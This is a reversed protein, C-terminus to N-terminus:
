DLKRKVFWREYISPAFSFGVNIGYYNESFLSKNNTSRTGLAFSLNISSLSKQSLVPIGFGITLGKDKVVLNNQLYPLSYIYGGIRYKTKVFISSHNSKENDMIEPTYQIGFTLKTTKQFGYNTSVGSARSSFKSWDTNNLNVHLTLESNRVNNGNKYKDNYKFSYSAGLTTSPATKYHLFTTDSTLIVYSFQNSYVELYSMLNDVQKAFFDEQPEIVATLTYQNKANIKQNYYIGFQYHVANLRTSSEFTGGSSSDKGLLNSSKSNTVNNFVYGLNAGVALRIKKLKIIDSSFGVFFESTNGSGKYTHKISDGSIPQVEYFNYGRRTFPKLGIAFGFHKAFSLGFAFHNVLITKNFSPNTSQNYFSLRSSIGTSFIPQGKGLSNYTAPNYFNLVTSDFYSITSNGLGGFSAHDLGESEGFGYYSYPSTNTQQGYSLTTIIIVLISLIRNLM